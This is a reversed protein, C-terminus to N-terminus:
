SRCDGDCYTGCRRCPDSATAPRNAQVRDWVREMARMEAGTSPVERDESRAPGAVMAAVAEAGICPTCHMYSHEHGQAEHEQITM